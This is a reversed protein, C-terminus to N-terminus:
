MSIMDGDLFLEVALDDIPQLVHAVFLVV